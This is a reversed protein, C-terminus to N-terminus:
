QKLLPLANIANVLLAEGEPTDFIDPSDGVQVLIGDHIRETQLYPNSEFAKFGGRKELEAKGFYEIWSLFTKNSRQNDSFNRGLLESIDNGCTANYCTENCHLLEIFLSKLQPLTLFMRVNSLGLGSGMESQAISLHLRKEAVDDVMIYNMEPHEFCDIYKLFKNSTFSSIKTNVWHLKKDSRTCNLPKPFPYQEVIQLLSLFHKRGKSKLGENYFFRIM